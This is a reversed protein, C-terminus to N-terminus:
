AFPSMVSVDDGIFCDDSNLRKQTPQNIPSIENGIVRQEPVAPKQQNFFDDIVPPEEDPTCDPCVPTPEAPPLPSSTPVPTPFPTPEPDPDSDSSGQLGDALEVTGAVAGGGVVGAGIAAGTAALTSIQAELLIASFYLSPTNSGMVWTGGSVEKFTAVGNEVTTTITEGTTTNTLSVDVGDVAGGNPSAVDIQVETRTVGEVGKSARTVGNCDVISIPLAIAPLPGTILAAGLLFLPLTVRYIRHFSSSASNM